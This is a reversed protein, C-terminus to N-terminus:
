CHFWFWFDIDIVNSCNKIIQKTTYSLPFISDCVAMISKKKSKWKRLPRSYNLSHIICLGILFLTTWAAHLFVCKHPAETYDILLVSAKQLCFTSWHNIVASALQPSIPWHNMQLRCFGDYLCILSHMSFLVDRGGVEENWLKLPM